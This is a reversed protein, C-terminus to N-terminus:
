EKSRVPPFIVTERVSKNMLFAFLRESFGFGFAPPMGYEMAEIFDEDLMQAEKDGAERLKVQDEFRKRQEIPDNLESFANCLESKGAVLQMRLVKKPNNPDSKALPSVEIPHGVLFCPQIMKQRVTKKYITDIMRGKGYEKEYKIGLEDAKAKLAEASLDAENLDLGTEKKFAEFYDVRPFPKNWDIKNGEFETEYGGVVNIIITKFLRESFEMGKSLDSYAWYFEMHDFEQLHERDMGENRFVRGIEFVKEYGGVLLRKLPLELSIRLYLDEDLANYHTVFPDAEAGGPIHELVPTQVELFGESVLFNRITQWFINKKRFIKRTEANSLLDLYRRRLLEETDKIGFHETPIPRINKSLVKWDHVELSKEEKKTKFLKGSVQVFDGLEINKVFLRYKGEPINKKNLFLQIKESEDEIHVFTSGGMVRMSRVRGVLIITKKIKDFDDLAEFNNMSRESKEPFVDIGAQKLNNLKELKTQLIDERM